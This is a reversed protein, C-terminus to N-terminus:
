KIGESMTVIGFADHKSKQENSVNNLSFHAKAQCGVLLFSAFQFFVGLNLRQAVMEM